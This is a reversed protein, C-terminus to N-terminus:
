FTWKYYEFDRIKRANDAFFLDETIGNNMLDLEINGPVDATIELHGQRYAGPRSTGELSWKGTLDISWLSMLRDKRRRKYFLEGVPLMRDPFVNVKKIM